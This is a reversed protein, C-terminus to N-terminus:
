SKSYFINLTIMTDEYMHALTIQKRKKREESGEEMFHLNFSGQSQRENWDFYNYDLFPIHEVHLTHIYISFFHM